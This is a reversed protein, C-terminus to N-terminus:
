SKIPDKKKPELGAKSVQNRIDTLYLVGRDGSRQHGVKKSRRPAVPPSRHGAWHPRHDVGATEGSFVGVASHRRMAQPAGACPSDPALPPFCFLCSLAPTTSHGSIQIQSSPQVHCTPPSLSGTPWALSNSVLRTKGLVVSVAITGWFSLSPVGEM